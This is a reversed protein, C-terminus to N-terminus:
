AISAIYAVASKNYFYLAKMIEIMDTDYNGSCVVKNEEKNEGNNIYSNLGNLFAYGYSLFADENQMAITLEKPM